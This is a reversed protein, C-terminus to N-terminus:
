KSTVSKLHPQAVNGETKTKGDLMSGTLADWAVDRGTGVRGCGMNESVTRLSYRDDALTVSVTAASRTRPDASMWVSYQVHM